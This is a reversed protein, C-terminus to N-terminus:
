PEAPTYSHDIRRDYQPMEQRLLEPNKGYKESAEEIKRSIADLEQETFPRASPKKKENSSKESDSV